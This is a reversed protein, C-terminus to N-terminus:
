ALFREKMKEPPLFCSDLKGFWQYRNTAIWDYLGNRLFPPLIFGICLLPYPFKLRWAIRLAAASKHYVKGKSYLIVSDPIAPHSQITPAIKKFEKTNFSSFLFQNKRDNRFIFKISRSCLM